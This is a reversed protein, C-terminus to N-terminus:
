TLVAVLFILTLLERRRPHAMGNQIQIATKFDGDLLPRILVNVRRVNEGNKVFTGHLYEAVAWVCVPQGNLFMFESKDPRGGIPGWGLKDVPITHFTACGSDFNFYANLLNFREISEVDLYHRTAATIQPCPDFDAIRVRM